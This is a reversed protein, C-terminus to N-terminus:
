AATPSFLVAKREEPLAEVVFDFCTMQKRKKEKKTISKHQSNCADIDTSHINVWRSRKDRAGM